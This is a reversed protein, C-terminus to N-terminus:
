GAQHPLLARTIWKHTDLGESGEGDRGTALGELSVLAATSATLSLTFIGENQPPRQQVCVGM